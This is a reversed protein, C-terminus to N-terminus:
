RKRKPKPPSILRNLNALESDARSLDPRPYHRPMKTAAIGYGAVGAQGVRGLSQWFAVEDRAQQLRAINLDSPDSQAAAQAAALEQHAHHLRYEAVGAEAASGGMVALDSGTVQGRIGPRGQFLESSPAANPNVNVGYKTGPASTFPPNAGQGGQRWTENLRGVRGPVASMNRNLSAEVDVARQAAARNAHRTMGWRGLGGLALGLGTGALEGYSRLMRSFPPVNEEAQRLREGGELGTLRGEQKELDDTLKGLQSDLRTVQQDIRRKHDAIAQSTKPGWNGDPNLGLLRQAQKVAAANGSDIKDFQRGEALLKEQEGQLKTRSARLRAITDRATSLPDPPEAQGPAATLGAAGATATAAKPFRSVLNGVGRVAADVPAASPALPTMSLLETFGPDPPMQGTLRFEDVHRQALDGLPGFTREPV